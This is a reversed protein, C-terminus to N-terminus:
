IIFEHMTYGRVETLTYYGSDTKGSQGPSSFGSECGMALLSVVKTRLMCTISSNLGRHEVISGRIAKCTGYARTTTCPSPVMDQWM